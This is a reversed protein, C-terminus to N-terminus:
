PEHVNTFNTNLYMLMIMVMYTHSQLGKKSAKAVKLSTVCISIIRKMDFHGLNGFCTLFTIDRQCWWALSQWHLCLKIVSKEMNRSCSKNFQGRCHCTSCNEALSQSLKNERSKSILLYCRWVWCSKLFEEVRSLIIFSKENDNSICFLLSYHHDKV